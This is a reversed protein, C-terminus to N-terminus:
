IEIKSMIMIVWIAAVQLVVCLAILFRGINSQLMIDFHNPNQALVIMVFAFPIIGMIIGQVKGQITYTQINERLRARDRLTNILKMLVTPLDGGTDRAVLIASNVFKLEESPMRKALDVLSDELSVGIRLSKLVIKFEDAIPSPMEQCLVEIAQTLSLGAKLCSAILMIADIIQNNFKTKRNEATLKAMMGPIFLGIAAGMIIGFKGMLMGGAAAAIVCTAVFFILKKKDM